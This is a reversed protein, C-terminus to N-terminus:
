RMESTFARQWEHGHLEFTSEPLTGAPSLETIDIVMALGGNRLAKIQRAMQGGNFDKFDSRQTEIGSFYTKLLKGDADFWYARAQEPDLKGEPSEYGALVRITGVGDVTDRKIKWDSEVFTDSAPIPEIAKLVFRLLPVDPGKALEYHKDGHQTRVYESKGIKAERRWEDASKWTDTYEGTEVHGSKVAAQFTAHLLYSPGTGAAPFGVHWGRDFYTRASEFSEVGAPRVTKYALTIRSVVQVPIGNELYPKFQMATIANRAADDLAPNDSVITGVERVKGARDIAVKTTLVGDLPGDKLPPWNISEPTLLNKRLTLEDVVVTHLLVADSGAAGVDLFDPPVNRLDELTTVTATVEPTGSAVTRAVMRGHFSEYKSFLAGWGLGGGYFPLGTSGTVAITAGMGKQVTGNTSMETWSCYVSGAMSRVDAEDVQKLVDPLDPVPNVLEIALERLWEPFYEGDNKQWEQSASVIEVQRFDPSRVERRWQTPSRWWIEVEGTRNSGQDRTFSPALVAKLHFPKTGAQDLTSREVAKKVLESPDKEAAFASLGMLAVVLWVVIRKYTRM